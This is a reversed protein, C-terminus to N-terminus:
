GNGHRQSTTENRAAPAPVLERLYLKKKICPEVAKGIYILYGQPITPCNCMIVEYLEHAKKMIFGPALLETTLIKKIM